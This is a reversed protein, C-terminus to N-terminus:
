LTYLRALGYHLYTKNLMRDRNELSIVVMFGGYRGHIVTIHPRLRHAYQTYHTYHTDRQAYHTSSHMVSHITHITHIRSHMIHEFEIM